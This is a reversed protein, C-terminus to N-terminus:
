WPSWAYQKSTDEDPAVSCRYPPVSPPVIVVHPLTSGCAPGYLHHANPHHIHSTLPHSSHCTSSSHLVHSTSHLRELMTRRLNKHECQGCPDTNFTHAYVDPSSMHLQIHLYDLYESCPGVRGCM